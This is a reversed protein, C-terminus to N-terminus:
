VTVLKWRGREEDRRSVLHWEKKLKKWGAWWSETRYPRDANAEYLDGLQTAPRPGLGLEPTPHHPPPLRPFDGPCSTQDRVVWSRAAMGIRGEVERAFM